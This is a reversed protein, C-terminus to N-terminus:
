LNWIAAFEALDSSRRGTKLMNILRLWSTRHASEWVTAIVTGPLATSSNPLLLEVQGGITIVRVQAPAVADHPSVIVSLTAPVGAAGIKASAFVVDETQRLIRPENTAGTVRQVILSLEALSPRLRPTSAVSASADVFSIQDTKSAVHAAATDVAANSAWRYDVVVAVDQARATSELSRSPEAVPAIVIIGKTGAEVAHSARGVWGPTGLIATIDATPQTSLTLSLPLSAMVSAVSGDERVERQAAVTFAITV